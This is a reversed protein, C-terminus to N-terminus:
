ASAAKEERYFFILDTQPPAIGMQRLMSMVQGRHLTAHNVVHMVMEKALSQREAGRLDKYDIVRELDADTISDAWQEWRKQVSSWDGEVTTGTMREIWVRDGFLIHELTGILGKHSSGLDRTRQEEPLAMVADVL